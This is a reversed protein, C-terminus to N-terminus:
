FCIGLQCFWRSYVKFQGIHLQTLASQFGTGHLQLQVTAGLLPAGSSAVAELAATLSEASITLPVLEGGPPDEGSKTHIETHAKRGSPTRFWESCYSCKYPLYGTHLRM